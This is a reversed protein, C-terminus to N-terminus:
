REPGEHQLLEERDASKWRAADERRGKDLHMHQRRAVPKGAQVWEDPEGKPDVVQPAEASPGRWSTPPLTTSAM